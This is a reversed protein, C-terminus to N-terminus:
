HAVVVQAPQAAVVVVPGNAGGGGAPAAAKEANCGMFGCITGVLSIVLSLITIILAFSLLGMTSVWDKRTMGNIHHDCSDIGYYDDGCQSQCSDQCKDYADLDSQMTGVGAGLLLIAIFRIILNTLSTAAMWTLGHADKCCCVPASAGGVAFWNATCNCGYICCGGPALCIGCCCTNFIGLIIEAVLIVIATCGGAQKGQATQFDAGDGNGGCNGKGM